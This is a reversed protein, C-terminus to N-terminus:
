GSNALRQPSDSERREGANSAEIIRKKNAATRFNVHVERASSSFCLRYLTSANIIKKLSQVERYFHRSNKTTLDRLIV